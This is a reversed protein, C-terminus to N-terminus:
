LAVKRIMNNRRLNILSEYIEVDALANFDVITAVTGFEIVSSLTSFDNRTLSVDGNLNGPNIELKFGEAPIEKRIKEFKEKYIAGTKVLQLIDLDMPEAILAERPDRRYFLFRPKDWLFMRFIAKIGECGGSTTQTIKGQLFDVKGEQDTGNGRVWLSGTRELENITLLAEGLNQNKHFINESSDSSPQRNFHNLENKLGHSELKKVATRLETVMPIEPFEAETQLLIAKMARLIQQFQGDSDLLQSLNRLKSVVENEKIKTSEFICYIRQEFATHLDEKTFLKGLWVIYTPKGSGCIKQINKHSDTNHDIFVVTSKNLPVLSQCFNDINPEITVEIIEKEEFSNLFQKAWPSFEGVAVIRLLPVKM